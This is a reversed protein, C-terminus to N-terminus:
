PSRDRRAFYEKFRARRIEPSKPFAPGPGAYLDRPDIEEGTQADVLRPIVRAGTRRDYLRIPDRGREFLWRDGFSMMAILVKAADYGKDTLEYAFREPRESYVRKTLVGQEVLESLRRSLMNRGVDLAAQLDDFRQPGYLCERIILPTWHDGLIDCSRAISCPADGFRKREM